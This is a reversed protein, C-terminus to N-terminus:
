KKKSETQGSVARVADIVERHNARSKSVYNPYADKRDTKYYDSGMVSEMFDTLDKNFVAFMFYEDAKEGASNIGLYASIIGALEGTNTMVGSGSMGKRVGFNRTYAFGLEKVYDTPNPNHLIGRKGDFISVVSLTRDIRYTAGDFVLIPPLQPRLARNFERRASPNQSLFAEFIERSVATNKGQKGQPRRYYRAPARDLDIKLLAFDHAVPMRPDYQPHVFVLPKKPTHTVSSFVSLPQELLDIRLTCGNQCPSHVCHAATAFWKKGVRTAQCKSAQGTPAVIYYEFTHWFDEKKTHSDESVVSLVGVQAGAGLACFVFVCTWLFRKM